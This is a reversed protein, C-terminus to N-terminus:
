CTSTPAVSLCLHEPRKDVKDLSRKVLSLRKLIHHLGDQRSDSASPAVGSIFSAEPRSPEPWHPPSTQERRQNCGGIGAKRRRQLLRTEYDNIGILVAWSHDYLKLTEGSPTKATVKQLGRGQQAWASLTLLLYLGTLFIRRVM